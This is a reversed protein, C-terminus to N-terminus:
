VTDTCLSMHANIAMTNPSLAPDLFHVNTAMEIRRYLVDQDCRRRSLSGIKRYLTTEEFTDWYPIELPQIIMQDMQLPDVPLM